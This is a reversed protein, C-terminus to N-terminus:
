FSLEGCGAQLHIFVKFNINIIRSTANVNSYFLYFVVATSCLSLILNFRSSRPITVIPIKSNKSFRFLM